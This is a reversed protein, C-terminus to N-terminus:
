EAERDETTMGEVYVGYQKCWRKYVWPGPIGEAVLCLYMIPSTVIFQAVTNHRRSVYTEM